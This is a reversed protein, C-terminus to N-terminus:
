RGRSQTDGYPMLTLLGMLMLGGLLYGYGLGDAPIILDGEPREIAGLLATVVWAAAPLGAAFLFAVFWIKKM